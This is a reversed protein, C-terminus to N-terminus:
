ASLRKNKNKDYKDFLDSINVKFKKVKTMLPKIIDEIGCTVNSLLDTVDRGFGESFNESTIFDSFTNAGVFHRFLQNVEQDSARDVYKLVFRRFDVQSMRKQLKDSCFDFFINDLPVRSGDIIRKIRRIM